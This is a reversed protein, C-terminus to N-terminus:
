ILYVKKISEQLFDKFEAEIDFPSLDQKLEYIITRSHQDDTLNVRLLFSFDTNLKSVAQLKQLQTIVAALQARNLSKM